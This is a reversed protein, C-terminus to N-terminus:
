LRAAPSRQIEIVTIEPRCCFRVNPTSVALGLISASLVQLPRTFAWTSNASVSPCSCHVMSRCVSKGVLQLEKVASKVMQATTKRGSAKETAREWATQAQEPTHGVLPHLQNQHEPKRRSRNASLYRFLQAAAILQISTAGPEGARATPRPRGTPHTSSQKEAAGLAADQDGFHLLNLLEQVRKQVRLFGLHLTKGRLKSLRLHMFFSQWIALNEWRSRAM